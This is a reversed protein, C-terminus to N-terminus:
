RMWGEMRYVKEMLKTEKNDKKAKFWVEVRVAYYKEWEGEYITFKKGSVLQRFGDSDAIISQKSKKSISRSEDYSWESLPDNTAAEFCRLFVSGEPLPKDYCFDYTYIGGQLDNYVQLWTNSDVTDVKVSDSSELPLSYKLGAPIPHKEAYDDPHEALMSMFCSMLFILAAPGIGFLLFLLAKVFKKKICLYVLSAITLVGLLLIVVFLFNQFFPSNADCAKWFGLNAFIFLAPFIWVLWVKAQDSLKVAKIREILKKCM